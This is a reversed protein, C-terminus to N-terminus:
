AVEMVVLRSVRCNEKLDCGAEGVALLTELPDRTGDVIFAPHYSGAQLLRELPLVHAVEGGELTLSENYRVVYRGARLEWWGYDDDEERLRPKLEERDASEEESGGFDLSGPGTLRYVAQVTLDLGVAARQTELHVLGGVHARTAEVDLIRM